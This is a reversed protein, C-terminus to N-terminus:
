RTSIQLCRFKSIKTNMIDNDDNENYDIMHKVKEELFKWGDKYVKDQLPNDDIKLSQVFDYSWISPKYTGPCRLPTNNHM